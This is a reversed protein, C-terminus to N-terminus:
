QRSSDGHGIRAVAIAILHHLEVDAVLHSADRAGHLLELAELAKMQGLTLAAVHREGDRGIQQLKIIVIQIINKANVLIPSISADKTIELKYGLAIIQIM